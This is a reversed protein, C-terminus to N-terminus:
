LGLQLRLKQMIEQHSTKAFEEPEYKKLMEELEAFMSLIDTEMEEQASKTSRPQPQETGQAFPPSMKMISDIVGRLQVVEVPPSVTDQNLWDAIYTLGKELKLHDVPNSYTWVDRAFSLLAGGQNQLHGGAGISAIARMVQQMTELLSKLYGFKRGNQPLWSDDLLRQSFFPDIEEAFAKQAYAAAAVMEHTETLWLRFNNRGQKTTKGERDDVFFLAVDQGAVALIQQTKWRKTRLARRVRTQLHQLSEYNAPALSMLYALESIKEEPLLGPGGPLSFFTVPPTWDRPKHSVGEKDDFLNSVVRAIIRPILKDYSEEGHPGVFLLQEINRAVQSVLEIAVEQKFELTLGLSIVGIGPPYIRLRGNIQSSQISAFPALQDLSSDSDSQLRVSQLLKSLSLEYPMFCLPQATPSRYDPIAPKWFSAHEISKKTVPRLSGLAGLKFSKRGDLTRRLKNINTIAEYFQRAKVTEPRTLLDPLRFMQSVGVMIRSGPLNTYLKAAASSDLSWDDEADVGTLSRKIEAIAHDPPQVIRQCLVFYIKLYLRIADAYKEESLPSESSGGSGSEFEQLTKYSAKIRYELFKKPFQYRRQEDQNRAAPADHALDRFKPWSQAIRILPVALVSDRGAGIQATTAETQIAVVAQLEESFIPSGSFGHEGTQKSDLEFFFHDASNQVFHKGLFEGRGASQEVFTKGYGLLKWKGQASPVLAVPIPTRAKVAEPDDLKLIAFDEATERSHVEFLKHVKLPVEDLFQLQILDGKDADRFLHGVTLVHGEDSFLWGTATATANTSKNLSVACVGQALLDDSNQPPIKM